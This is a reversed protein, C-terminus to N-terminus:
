TQNFCHVCLVLKMWFPLSQTEVLEPTPSTSVQPRVSPVAWGEPCEQPRPVRSTDVCVKTEEKQSM